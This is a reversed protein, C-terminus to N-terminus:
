FNKIYPDQMITARKYKERLYMLRARPMGNRKWHSVATKDIQLLNAVHTTGGLAEVIASTYDPALRRAKKAEM